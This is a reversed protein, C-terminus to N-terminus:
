GSWESLKAWRDAALNDQLLKSGPMAVNLVFRMDILGGLHKAQCRVCIRYSQM